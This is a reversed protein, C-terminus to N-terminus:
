SKVLFIIEFNWRDEIGGERTFTASKVNGAYTQGTDIKLVPLNAVTAGYDWWKRVVNELDTKMPNGTEAAANNVVGTLSITETCVGLDINLTQTSKDSSKGPLGAQTPLRLFMHVCTECQLYWANTGYSPASAAAANQFISVIIDAIAM